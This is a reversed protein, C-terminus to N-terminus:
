QFLVTLHTSWMDDVAGFRVLHLVKGKGRCVPMIRRRRIFEHTANRFSNKFLNDSRTTLYGKETNLHLGYLVPSESPLMEDIHKHYGDYDLNPPPLFGPALTLEGELRLLLILLTISLATMLEQFM